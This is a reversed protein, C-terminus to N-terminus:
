DRKRRLRWAGLALGCTLLLTVGAPEPVAQNGAVRFGTTYNSFLPTVYFRVTADLNFSDGAFDGGRYGRVSSAVSADLDNWQFVDGGQDYTGYASPADFYAGVDTVYNQTPSSTTSQTLVYGSPGFYNASNTGGPPPDASPPSNSRTPYLWYKNAGTLSPDYYAAKYWENEDPLYWVASSSHSFASRQVPTPVTVTGSNNGGNTITYAGTETNGDTLWNTFRVADYWTVYTVPRQGDGIVAYSYSGASGTRSIGAVNLNTALNTNYLGYTDTTAVANLFATYQALTVDYSGIKYPYSVAGYGDNTDAANGPNGVKVIDIPIPGARLSFTSLIMVAALLGRLITKNRMGRGKWLKPRQKVLWNGRVFPSVGSNLAFDPAPIGLDARPNDM